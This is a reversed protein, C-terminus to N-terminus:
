VAKNAHSTNCAKGLPMTGHPIQSLCTVIIKTKFIVTM